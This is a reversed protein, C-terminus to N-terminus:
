RLLGPMWVLAVAIYAMAIVAFVGVVTWEVIADRRDAEDLERFYIAIERHFDPRERLDSKPAENM